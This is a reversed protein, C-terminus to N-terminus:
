EKFVTEFIEPKLFTFFIPADNKSDQLEKTETSRELSVLTRLIPVSKRLTHTNNSFTSKLAKSFTVQIFWLNKYTHQLKSVIELREPKLFTLLMPFQKKYLHSERTETSRETKVLTSLMPLENKDPHENNPITSKQEKSFTVQTFADNKDEQEEKCVTKLM